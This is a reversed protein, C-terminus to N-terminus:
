SDYRVIIPCIIKLDYKKIKSKYEKIGENDKMKGKCHSGMRTLHAFGAMDTASGHGM